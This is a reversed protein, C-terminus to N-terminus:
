AAQDQPFSWGLDRLVELARIEGPKVYGSDRAASVVDDGAALRRIFDHRRERVQRNPPRGVAPM